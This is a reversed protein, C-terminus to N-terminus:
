ELNVSNDGECYFVHDSWLPGYGEAGPNFSSDHEHRVMVEATKPYKKLERILEAVTM